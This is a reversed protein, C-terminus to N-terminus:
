ILPMAAKAAAAAAVCFIGGEEPVTSLMGAPAVRTLVMAPEVATLIDDGRMTLSMFYQDTFIFSAPLIYSNTLCDRELGM